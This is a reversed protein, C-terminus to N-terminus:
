PAGLDECSLSRAIELSDLCQSIGFGDKDIQAGYAAICERNCEAEPAGNCRAFVACLTACLDHICDHVSPTPSLTLMTAIILPRM